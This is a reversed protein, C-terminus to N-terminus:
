ATVVMVTGTTTYLDGVALGAAVATANDAYESLTLKGTYVETFNADVNEMDKRTPVYTGNKVITKKAM